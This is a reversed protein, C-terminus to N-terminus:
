SFEIELMQHDLVAPLSHHVQHGCRCRSDADAPIAAHRMLEREANLMSRRLNEAAALIEVSRIGPQSASRAILADLLDPGRNLLALSEEVRERRSRRMELKRAENLDYAESTYEADADGPRPLLRDDDSVSFHETWRHACPNLLKRGQGDTSPTTSRAGNCYRCAYFCNQYDNALSEAASQHQGTSVPVFHEVTTLGTGEVGHESLDSEHALCFACTFGFEWRLCPRYAPYGLRGRAPRPQHRRELRERFPLTREPLIQM